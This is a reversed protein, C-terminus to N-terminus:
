EFPDQFIAQVQRRFEKRSQNDMEALNRGQFKIAGSTPQIMGLLLRALTTKGSGSEGAVSIITPKNQNIVLSVEDVAVTHHKNLMGGGFVRTVHDAELLHM